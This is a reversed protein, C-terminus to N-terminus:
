LVWPFAIRSMVLAAWVKPTKVAGWGGGGFV